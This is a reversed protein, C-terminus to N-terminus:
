EFLSHSELTCKKFANEDSFRLGLIKIKFKIKRIGELAAIFNRISRFANDESEFLKGFCKCEISKDKLEWDGNTNYNLTQINNPLVKPSFKLEGQLLIVRVRVM